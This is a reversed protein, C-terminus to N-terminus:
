VHARGIKMMTAAAAAAVIIVVSVTVVTDWDSATQIQRDKLLLLLLM